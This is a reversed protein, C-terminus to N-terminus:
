SPYLCNFQQGFIESNFWKLKNDIYSIDKDVYVCLLTHKDDIDSYLDTSPSGFEDDYSM